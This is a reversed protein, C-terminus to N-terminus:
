CSKYIAITLTIGRKRTRSVKMILQGGRFLCCGIDTEVGKQSMPHRAWEDVDNLDVFPSVTFSAETQSYQSIIISILHHNRDPM